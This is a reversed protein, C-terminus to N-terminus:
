RGPPSGNARWDAAFTSLLMLGIFGLLVWEARGLPKPDAWGKWRWIAYQVILVLWAIRDVTLSVSGLEIDLLPLGFCTGALLVVLCGGLLGGRLYIVLGWVLGVIGAIVAVAQM